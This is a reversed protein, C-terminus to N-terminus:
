VNGATFQNSRSTNKDIDELTKRSKETVAVLTEVGKAIRQSPSNQESGGFIQGALRGSFTSLIPRTEKEFDALTKQSVTDFGRLGRRRQQESIPVPGNRVADFVGKLDGFLKRLNEDAESRFTFGFPDVPASPGSAKSPKSAGTADRRDQIAGWPDSFAKGLQNMLTVYRYAKELEAAVGSIAEKWDVFHAAAAVVALGLGGIALTLGGIPTAMAAAIGSALGLATGLGGIATSVGLVSIAFTSILGGVSVLTAGLLGVAVVLQGNADVWRIVDGLHTSITELLDSLYPAVKSAIVAALQTFQSTLTSVADGFRDAIAVMEDSWILAFSSAQKQLEPLEEVMALIASGARKGWLDFAAQARKVPDEIAAISEAFEFIRNPDLGKSQMERAAKEVAGLDTGTQKAAFQLVSLSKASLGTRARMDNLAGGLDSFSRLAAAFPATIAAGAAGISAGIAFASKSFSNLQRLAGDLGKKFERDDTVLRLFARGAEISSVSM